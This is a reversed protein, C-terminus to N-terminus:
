VDDGNDGRNFASQAGSSMGQQESERHARENEPDYGAELLLTNRSVGIRQKAEQTSWYSDENRSEPDKWNIAVTVAGDDLEALSEPLLGYDIAMRLAVRVLQTWADAYTDARDRVKEILGAESQKLSEGSTAKTQTLSHLPTDTLSAIQELQQDIAKLIQSLDGPPFAGFKADKRSTRWLSGPFNRLTSNKEIGIAYRQQYGQNDSVLDLDVLRKNLADQMPLVKHIESVGLERGDVKNRFHAMAHGMPRGITIESDAGEVTPRRWAIPWETEGADRYSGWVGNTTSRAYKEIRDAYYLNMRNMRVEGLADRENWMKVICDLQLPDDARYVPLASDPLNYTLRLGREPDYWVVGYADGKRTAQKHVINSVLGGKNDNWVKAFWANLLKDNESNTDDEDSLSTGFTISEIELKSALKDCVIDTTNHAYPLGSAELYKAARKTLQVNHEGDYYSQYMSYQRSQAEIRTAFGNLRDQDITIYSLQNQESDM